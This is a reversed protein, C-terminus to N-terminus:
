SSFQALQLGYSRDKRWVYQTFAEICLPVPRASILTLRLDDLEIDGSFLSPDPLRGSRRLLSAQAMSVRAM